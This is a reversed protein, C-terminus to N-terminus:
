DEMFISDRQWISQVLAQEMEDMNSEIMVGDTTIVTASLGDNTNFVRILDGERTFAYGRVIMDANDAIQKIREDPM